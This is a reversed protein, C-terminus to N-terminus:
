FKFTFDHLLILVLLSVEDDSEADDAFLDVSEEDSGVKEEAEEKLLFEEMQQLKFFKDDVVSSKMHTKAVKIEKRKKTKRLVKTSKTDEADEDELDLNSSALALKLTKAAKKKAMLRTVKNMLADYSDANQLELQQWVQEDDFHDVILEPLAEGSDHKEENGKTLDYL